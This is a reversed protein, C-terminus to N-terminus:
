LIKIRPGREFIVAAPAGYRKVQKGSPLTEFGADSHPWEVDDYHGRWGPSRDADGKGAGHSAFMDRKTQGSNYAM